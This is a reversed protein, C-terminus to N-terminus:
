QWLYKSIWITMVNTHASNVGNVCVAGYEYPWWIFSCQITSSFDFTCRASSFTLSRHTYSWFYHSLNGGKPWGMRLLCSLQVLNFSGLVIFPQLTEFWCIAGEDLWTTVDCNWLMIFDLNWRLNMQVFFRNRVFLSHLVCVRSSLSYRSGFHMLWILGYQFYHRNCWAGFFTSPIRFARRFPFM